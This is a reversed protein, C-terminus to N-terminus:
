FEEGIIVINKPHKLGEKTRVMQKTLATVVTKVLNVCSRGSSAIIVVDGIKIERGMFDKMKSEM